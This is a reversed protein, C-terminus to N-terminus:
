NKPAKALQEAKKREDAAQEPRGTRKYLSVLREHPEPDGPQLSAAEQLYRMEEADAHSNASQKALELTTLYLMDTTGADEANLRHARHLAEYAAQTEGLNWLVAGFLANLPFLDPWRDVAGALPGRASGYRKLQYYTFALNYQAQPSQPQLEAARALPKLARELEGHQGYLIGLATLKDADNPDYLQDCVTIAKESVGRDLEQGCEYKLQSLNDSQAKQEKSKQFAQNAEENRGEKRYLLGLQYQARSDDPHLRAAEKLWKEADQMNGDRAYALGLYYATNPYPPKANAKNLNTIAKKYDHEDLDLRGLYYLVSPQDGVAKRVTELERRAEAAQHEEFLAIALPFRARMVLTPDIGLAARFEEAADGYKEQKLAEYGKGLHQELLEDSSAKPSSENQTATQGFSFTGLLLTPLLFLTRRRIRAKSVGNRAPNAKM